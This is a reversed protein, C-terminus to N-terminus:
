INDVSRFCVYLFVVGLAGFFPLNIHQQCGSEVTLILSKEWKEGVEGDM